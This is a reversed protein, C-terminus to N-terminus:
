KASAYSLDFNDSYQSAISADKIILLNEDNEGNAAGTWNYSGTVVTSGDAVLYKSHNLSTFGDKKVDVGANLLDDYQSYVSTTQWADFVGHVQVGRAKAAKLADAIDPDSFTFISFAISTKAAGIVNLLHEKVQDSPTFYAEVPVDRPKGAGTTSVLPAVKTVTSPGIGPVNDLDDVSQFPGNTERYSVIKQAIAPGVGPLGALEQASATNINIKGSSGGVKVIFEHQTNDSKSGDFNGGFMENFEAAYAGALKADNLILSNNADNTLQQTTFNTSGSLVTERDVVVFKNHMLSGSKTGDSVIQIGASKLSNFLSQNDPDKYNKEEVVIKVKGAGLRKAAAILADAVEQSEITYAAMLIESSASNIVDITVNTVDSSSQKPNTFYAGEPADPQTDTTAPSQQSKVLVELTGSLVHKSGDKGYVTMQRTVTVLGPTNFTRSFTVESLLNGQPDYAKGTFSQTSGLVVETPGGVVVAYDGQYLAPALSPSGILVLGVVTVSFLFRKDM